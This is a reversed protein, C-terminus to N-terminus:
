NPQLNRFNKAREAEVESFRRFRETPPLLAGVDLLRRLAIQPNSRAFTNIFVDAMDPQLEGHMRNAQSRGLALKTRYGQAAKPSRIDEINTSQRRKAVKM